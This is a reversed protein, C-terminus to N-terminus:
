TLRERQALEHVKDAILDRVQRFKEISAGKPDDINWNEQTGLFASPCFDNTKVSCMSIVTDYNSLKLTDLAKSKQHSIDIGIEAMVSVAVPDVASGRKVGASEASMDFAKAFGEAMQSRCTNEVCIFLIRM